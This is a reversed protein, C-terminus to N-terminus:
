CKNESLYYNRVEMLYGTQGFLKANRIFEEKKEEM